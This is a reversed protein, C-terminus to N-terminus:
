SFILAVNLLLRRLDRVIAVGYGFAWKRGYVSDKHLPVRIM